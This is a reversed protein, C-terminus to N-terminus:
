SLATVFDATPCIVYLISFFRLFVQKKLSFYLTVITDIHVM